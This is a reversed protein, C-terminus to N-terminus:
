GDRGPEPLPALAAAFMATLHATLAEPDAARLDALGLIRRVSGIGMVISAAATARLRADPGQLRAALPEVLIRELHRRIIPQIQPDGVSRDLTRLVPGAQGHHILRVVHEALRGPLEAAEGELVHPLASEGALVEGFLAAKSGFYRNVLAVNAEARAAIARVSVHDYGHEAFLERAAELLRRRTAARDRRPRPAPGDNAQKPRM